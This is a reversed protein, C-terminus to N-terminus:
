KRAEMGGKGDMGRYGRKGSEKERSAGEAAEEKKMRGEGSTDRRRREGTGKTTEWRQRDQPGGM